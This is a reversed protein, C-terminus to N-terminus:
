EQKLHTVFKKLGIDSLASYYPKLESDTMPKPYEFCVWRVIDLMQDPSYQGSVSYLAKLKTADFQTFVGSCFSNTFACERISELIASEESHLCDFLTAQELQM